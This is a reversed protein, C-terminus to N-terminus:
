LIGSSESSFEYRIKPILPNSHSKFVRLSASSDARPSAGSNPNRAQARILERACARLVTIIPLQGFRLIRFNM